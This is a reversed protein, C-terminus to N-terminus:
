EIWADADSLATAIARQEALTHPLPIVIGRLSNGDISPFTSGTTAALIMAVASVVQNSLYSTDNQANARISAVGRGIAYTDDAFNTRGTSSGRVCILLDGVKCFRAPETTWQIKIPHKETFETPGNILATGRENRNYTSGPPSQGMVVVGCKGLPIEDWDAPIVGVETQKYGKKMEM